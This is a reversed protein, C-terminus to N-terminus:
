DSHEVCMTYYSPMNKSKCLLYSKIGFRASNLLIYQVWGLRGKYLFLSEDITIDQEPIIASQFEELLHQLIPWIKNLKPCPHTSANYADNNSFHMNQKIQRFRRYSMTKVFFPPNWLQNKSWYDQLDPKKIVRQLIIIGLFVRIENQTTPCWPKLHLILM